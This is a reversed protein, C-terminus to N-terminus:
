RIFWNKFQGPFSETIFDAPYWKKWYKKDTTYSLKGTAPDTLTSFGVIGADLWVNGVDDLRHVVKGCKEANLLSKM